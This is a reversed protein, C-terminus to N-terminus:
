DHQGDVQYAAARPDDEATGDGPGAQRWKRAITAPNLDGRHMPVTVRGRKVSHKLAVHSGMQTHHYWGAHHLARIMDTATVRPLKPSM